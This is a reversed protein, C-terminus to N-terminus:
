YDAEDFDPLEEKDVLKCLEYYLDDSNQALMEVISTINYIGEQKGYARCYMNLVLATKHIEESQAHIKKLTNLELIM